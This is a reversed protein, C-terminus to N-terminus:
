KNVEVKGKEILYIRMKTVANALFKDEGTFDNYTDGDANDYSVIWMSDLKCIVLTYLWDNKMFEDPLEELGEAVSFASTVSRINHDVITKLNGGRLLIVDSWDQSKDCWFYVSEQKVGLEKLCMSPKFSSLQSELKM